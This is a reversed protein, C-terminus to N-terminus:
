NTVDFVEIRFDLISNPSLGLVPQAYPGYGYRSAFILRIIGGKNVQPIGLQWGRFVDGLVFSPPIDGTQAFPTASSLARGTYALTVRSSLSYLSSVTGPKEIIYYVDITDPRGAVNKVKQATLNNDALYKTIIENDIVNQDTNIIAPDEVKNCATFLLVCWCLLLLRNM